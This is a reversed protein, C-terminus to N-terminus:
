NNRINIVIYNLFIFVRSFHMKKPYHGSKSKKVKSAPTEWAPEPTGAIMASMGADM